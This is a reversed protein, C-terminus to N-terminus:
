KWEWIGYTVKNELKLGTEGLLIGVEGFHYYEHAILYAMFAAPPGGFAKVKDTELGRALLAAVSDGSATLSALLLAKDGAQDKPIKVLSQSLDPAAPQLWDLRNNHLHTLMAGATRGKGLKAALGADPIGGVFTQVHKCHIQWTTLIPDPM